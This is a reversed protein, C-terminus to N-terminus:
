LEEKSSASYRLEFCGFLLKGGKHISCLYEKPEKLLPNLHGNIENTKKPLM